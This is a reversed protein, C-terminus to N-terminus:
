ESRLWRRGTGDCVACPLVSVLWGHVYRRTGSGECDPCPRSALWVVVTDRAERALLFQETTGGHDPHCTKLSRRWANHLSDPTVDDPTLGLRRFAEELTM